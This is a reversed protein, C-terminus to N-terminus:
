ARRCPPTAGEWWAAMDAPMAAELDLVGGDPHPLRVRAAHLAQRPAGTAALTAETFGREQVDLFVEPPVGYLRDGLVPLGAHALHVRIQHTRGTYIRCRVLSLGGRRGIVRAETRAELGDPRVAMQIRIPGGAPGIPGRLDAEDWPAEGRCLALYEKVTDAAHLRDKLFRNADLDLTLLQVGSTDRDLRHVLDVRAHPWRRRALSILAWAYDTGVPHTLLGAPKDVAVVRADEHLRPPFPPPPGSPAIGELTLHLVDGARVIASGRLVRGDPRRVSGDRIGRALWTRSRDLFRRALFVDLRMGDGALPVDLVRCALDDDEDDM